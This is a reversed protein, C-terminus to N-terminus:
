YSKNLLAVFLGVAVHLKSEEVNANNSYDPNEAACTMPIVIVKAVLTSFRPENANKLKM